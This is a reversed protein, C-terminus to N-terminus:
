LMLMMAVIPDHSAKGGPKVMPKEWEVQFIVHAVYLIVHPVWLIVNPYVPNAFVSWTMVIISIQVAM